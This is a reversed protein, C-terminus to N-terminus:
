SMSAVSSWGERDILAEIAAKIKARSPMDTVKVVIKESYQVEREAANQEPAAFQSPGLLQALDGETFGTAEIAIGNAALDRLLLDLGDLDWGALEATRNDAVAYAAAEAGQLTTRVVAVTTWGLEKAAQLRGNGALVKNDMSVLLPMQQGFRQLSTKLAALNREPHKRVNTPDLVLEDIRVQEYTLLQLNHDKTTRAM